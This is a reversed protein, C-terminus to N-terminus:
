LDLDMGFHRAKLADKHMRDQYETLTELAPDYPNEMRGMLTRPTVFTSDTGETGRLSEAEEAGEGTLTSSVDAAPAAVSARGLVPLPPMQAAQQEQYYRQQEYYQQETEVDDSSSMGTSVSQKSAGPRVIQQGVCRLDQLFSSSIRSSKVFTILSTFSM